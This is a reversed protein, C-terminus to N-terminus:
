FLRKETRVAGDSYRTVVITLGTPTNIRQGSLNYYQTAIEKNDSVIGKANTSGNYSAGRAISYRVFEEKSEVTQVRNNLYINYEQANCDEIELKFPQPYFMGTSDSYDIEFYMIICQDTVIYNLYNTQAGSGWYTGEATFLGDNTLSFNIEKEEVEDVPMYSQRDKRISGENSVTANCRSNKNPDAKLEALVVDNGSRLATIFGNKDVFLVPNVSLDYMEGWRIVASPPDVHLQRSEGIRLTINKEVISIKTVGSANTTDSQAFASVAIITLILYSVIRKMIFSNLQNTAFM